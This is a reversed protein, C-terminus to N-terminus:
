ILQTYLAALQSAIKDWTYFTLIFEKAKAGLSQAELTKEFYHNLANTIEEENAEVVYVVGAEEADLFNCGKTIICPLGAAMGELVSLSFGESYSPLIYLSAVSFAAYKLTGQLNGTFTVFELCNLQSFQEKVEALYGISDPGAVVLHSNPFALHTKAFAKALIDLGKKPDIRSLFLIVKKDRTEPFTQYFENPSPLTEFKEIQIGNSITFVQSFGLERVQKMECDTLAQIASAKRLAPNDFFNLYFSKKKAQKQLAWPELMGHPTMIYPLKKMQCLKYTLSLMPGFLTHAHIIDYNKLHMLLWYAWSISITQDYRHWCPFYQIRYSSKQIWTRLPVQLKSKDNANTSVVDVNLGHEGLAQAIECVVKGTGGYILSIYPIILLVRM